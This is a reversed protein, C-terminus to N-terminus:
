AACAVQNIVDMESANENSLLVNGAKDQVVIATRGSRPAVDVTVFRDGPRATIEITGDDSVFVEVLTPDIATSVVRLLDGARSIAHPAPLDAGEETARVVARDLQELLEHPQKIKSM